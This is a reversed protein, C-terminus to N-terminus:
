AEGGLDGPQLADIADCEACQHHRMGRVSYAKVAERAVARLREIRADQEAIYDLIERDIEAIDHERKYDNWTTM